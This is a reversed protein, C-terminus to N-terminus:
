EPVAFQIRCTTLENQFLNRVEFEFILRWQLEGSLGALLALSPTGVAARGVQRARVDNNVSLADLRERLENWLDDGVKVKSYVWWVCRRAVLNKWRGM